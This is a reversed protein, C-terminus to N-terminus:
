AARLAAGIAPLLTPLDKEDIREAGPLTDSLTSTVVRFPLQERAYDVFTDDGGPRQYIRMESAPGKGYHSEYYDMSRQMELILTEYGAENNWHAGDTGTNINPQDIEASINRSLYLLKQDSVEIYVNEPLLHMVARPEDQATMEIRDINNLALEVIDIARPEINRAHLLDVLRQILSTRAAVVNMMKTAGNRASIPLEFLDITADDIHFDILDGVKWKLAARLEDAHVEPTEVQLLSYSGPEMVCVCPTKSLRFQRSLQNLEDDLSSDTSVANIAFDVLEPTTQDKNWKVLTVAVANRQISLGAQLLQNNRKFLM